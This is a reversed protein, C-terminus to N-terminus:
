ISLFSAKTLAKADSYVLYSERRRLRRKKRKEVEEEEEKKREFASSFPVFSKQEEM